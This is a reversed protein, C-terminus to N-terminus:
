ATGKWKALSIVARSGRDPWREEDVFTGETTFGCKKFVALSAPNDAFVTAVFKERDKIEDLLKAVLFTGIGKGRYEPLVAIGLRAVHSKHGFGLQAQGWGVCVHTPYLAPDLVLWVRWRRPDLMDSVHTHRFHTFMDDAAMKAAFASATAFASDSVVGSTAFETVVLGHALEYEPIM